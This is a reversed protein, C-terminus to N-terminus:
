GLEDTARVLIPIIGLGNVPRHQLTEGVYIFIPDQRRFVSGKTLPPNLAAALDPGQDVLSHDVNSPVLKGAIQKLRQLAEGRSGRIQWSRRLFWGAAQKLRLIVLLLM